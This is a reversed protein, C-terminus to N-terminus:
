EILERVKFYDKALFQSLREIRFSRGNAILRRWGGDEQFKVAVILKGDNAYTFKKPPVTVTGNALYLLDVIIGKSNREVRVHETL